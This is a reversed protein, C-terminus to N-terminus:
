IKLTLINGLALVQSEMGPSPSVAPTQPQEVLKIKDETGSSQGRPDDRIALTKWWRQFGIIQKSREADGSTKAAEM